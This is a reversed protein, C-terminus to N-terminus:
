YYIDVDVGRSYIAHVPSTNINFRNLSLMKADWELLEVPTLTYPEHHVRITNLKGKGPDFKYLLYREILFFELSESDAFFPEGKIRYKFKSVMDLPQDKRLVSYSFENVPTFKNNIRAYHYPLNIINAGKVSLFSDADLSYFWVGPVGNEDHVYTRVNVENFNPDIKIDFIFKLSVDFLSFPTVALFAKDEFKDVFLGEPLTSQIQVPDAEWHLFLLDRWKHFMVQNGKDPINRLELRQNLTPTKM